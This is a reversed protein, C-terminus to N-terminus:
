QLEDSDSSVGCDSTDDSSYSDDSNDGSCDRPTLHQPLSPLIYRVPTCKGNINEWGHGIPSPHQQLTYYLQCYAIYNTRQVHLNLSDEDPPLRITSMKLLKHWKSARAQGCSVDASEGYIKSLVFAKM